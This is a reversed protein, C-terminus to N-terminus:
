GTSAQRGQLKRAEDNKKKNLLRMEEIKKFTSSGQRTTMSIMTEKVTPTSKNKANQYAKRRLGSTTRKTKTSSTVTSTTALRLTLQNTTSATGTLKKVTATGTTRSSAGRQTKRTSMCRPASASHQDTSIKPNTSSIVKKRASSLAPTGGQLTTPNRACNSTAAISTSAPAAADSITCRETSKCFIFLFEEGSSNNENRKTTIVHPRTSNSFFKKALRPSTNIRFPILRGLQNCHCALASLLVLIMVSLTYAPLKPNPHCM